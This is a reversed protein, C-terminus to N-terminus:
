AGPALWVLDTPQWDVLEVRDDPKWDLQQVGEAARRDFMPYDREPGGRADQRACTACQNLPLADADPTLSQDGVDFSTRCTGCFATNETM